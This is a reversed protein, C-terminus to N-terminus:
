CERKISLISLCVAYRVEVHAGRKGDEQCSQGDDKRRARDVSAHATTHTSARRRGFESDLM